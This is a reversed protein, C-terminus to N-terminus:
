IVDSRVRPFPDAFSPRAPRAESSSLPMIVAFAPCKEWTVLAAMDVRPWITFAGQNSMGYAMTIAEFDIVYQPNYPAGHMEMIGISDPVVARWDPFDSTILSVLVSGIMVSDEDLIEIMAKPFTSPSTMVRATRAEYYRRRSVCPLRINPISFTRGFSPDISGGLDHMCVLRHGDTAVLLIGGDPSAEVHVGRISERCDHKDAFRRAAAFIVANFRCLESLPAMPDDPASM